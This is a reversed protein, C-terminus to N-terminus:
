PITTNFYPGQFGPATKGRELSVEPANETELEILVPIEVGSIREEVRITRANTSFPPLAGHHASRAVTIHTHPVHIRTRHLHLILPAM